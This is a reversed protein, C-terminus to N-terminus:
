EEFPITTIIFGFGKGMSKASGPVERLKFPFNSLYNSSEKALLQVNQPPLLEHRIRPLLTKIYQFKVTLSIISIYSFYVM